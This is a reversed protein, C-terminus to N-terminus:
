GTVAWKNILLVIDSLNADGTTWKNIYAIVETMSVQGCPIDDGLLICTPEPLNTVNFVQVRHSETDAVYLKNDKVDIGGPQCFQGGADQPHSYIKSTCNVSGFTTIYMGQSNYISVRNNGTDAVYIIGSSDVALSRPSSFQARGSGAGGFSRIQTGNKLFMRIMNNGTDAVYVTGNYVAIGQPQNLPGDESYSGNFETRNKAAPVKSNNPQNFISIRDMGTNAVYIIGEDDLEVGSPNEFYIRTQPIYEDSLGIGFASWNVQTGSDNVWTRYIQVRDNNKDAVYLLTDNEDVRRFAVGAPDDLEGADGSGATGYSDQYEGNENFKQVRGNYSEVVYVSGDEVDVDM